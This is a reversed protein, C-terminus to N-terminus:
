KNPTPKSPSLAGNGDSMRKIQFKWLPATQFDELPDAVLAFRFKKRNNNEGCRRLFPIEDFAVVVPRVAIESLRDIKRLEEFHDSADLFIPEMEILLRRKMRCSAVM